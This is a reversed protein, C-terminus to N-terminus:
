SINKVVAPKKCIWRVGYWLTNIDEINEYGYYLHIAWGNTTRADELTRGFSGIVNKAIWPKTSRLEELTHVQSKKGFLSCKFFGTEKSSGKGFYYDTKLKEKPISLGSMVDQIYKNSEEFGESHKFFEIGGNFEEQKKQRPEKKEKEKRLNQLTNQGAEGFQIMPERYDDQSVVDGNHECAMNRACEEMVHCRHMITTPCYVQTEVYKDGWEKMRGTIRGFLQYIDDNTLDLHGFIASTFSGLDEHTLTQGMGVCLFGTIVMPRMELGHHKILRNITQCVEENQSFLPITKTHGMADKYQLTKEFGNIVVVVSDSNLKFVLDRVSNHGSRRVHAPIFTRTNNNIIEPYRKLVHQIFGITQKDLEDFDFPKPRVYPSAFFDDVCNFTMDKFGAYNSDNFTDLQILRLRSWFGSPKWIRDPSATLAIISKVIEINHIEEIQDRLSDTIYKHLEDYYAFARYINTKNKNIVKLFEVGDDYRRSNSCMVVVRPCTSEDFCIGQLEKKNKVHTYKGEYKSAFVCISGKGYTNEITELRKAFQRNNLLTNMTFVIHISRGFEDDQEIETLIRNIATFTKGLQTLLVCLIFKCAQEITEM